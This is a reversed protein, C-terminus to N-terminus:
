CDDSPIRNASTGGRWSSGVTPTLSRRISPAHAVSDSRLWRLAGDIKMRGEPQASGPAGRLVTDDAAIQSRIGAGPRSSVLASSAGPDFQVRDEVRSASAKRWRSAVCFACPLM